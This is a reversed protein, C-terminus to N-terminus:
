NYDSSINIVIFYYLLALYWMDLDARISTSTSVQIDTWCHNQEPKLITNMVM